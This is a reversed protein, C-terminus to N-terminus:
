VSNYHFKRECIKNNAGTHFGTKCRCSYGGVHNVCTSKSSDCSNSGACENKDPYPIPINHYLLFLSLLIILLVLLLQIITIIITLAIIIIVIIITIIIFIYNAYLIRHRHFKSLRIQENVRALPCHGNKRKNPRKSHTTNDGLKCTPSIEAM